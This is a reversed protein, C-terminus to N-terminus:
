LSGEKMIRGSVMRRASTGINELSCGGAIAIGVPTVSATASCIKGRVSLSPTPLAVQAIGQAVGAGANANSGNRGLAGGVPPPDAPGGQVHDPRGPATSSRADTLTGEIARQLMSPAVEMRPGHLSRVDRGDVLKVAADIRVVVRWGAADPPIRVTRPDLSREIEGAVREWGANDGNARVVSASVRGDPTVAVEFTANGVAPAESSDAAAEAVALVTGGRGLGMAVDHAALGEALGGTRSAGTSAGANATAANTVDPKFAARPDIAIATPSFSWGDSGSQSPRDVGPSGDTTRAGDPPAANSPRVDIPAVAAIAPRSRSPLSPVSRGVPARPVSTSLELEVTEPEPSPTHVAGAGSRTFPASRLAFLMVAHAVCATALPVFRRWGVGTVLGYNRTVLIRNM